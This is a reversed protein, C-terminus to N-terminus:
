GRLKGHNGAVTIISLMPGRRAAIVIRCCDAPSASWGVATMQRRVRSRSPMQARERLNDDTTKPAPRPAAAFPDLKEETAVAM